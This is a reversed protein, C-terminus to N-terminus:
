GLIELTHGVLNEVVTNDGFRCVDGDYLNVANFTDSVVPECHVEECLKCYFVGDSGFIAGGELKGFCELNSNRDKIIM